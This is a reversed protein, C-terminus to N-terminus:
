KPQIINPGIWYQHMEITYPQNALMASDYRFALLGIIQYDGRALEYYDLSWLRRQWDSPEPTMMGICEPVLWIKQSSTLKNKLRALYWPIVSDFNENANMYYDFGVWDINSPISLYSYYPDELMPFAETIMVPSSYWNKIMGTVNYLTNYLTNQSTSNYYGDQLLCNWFPEDALYFGALIDFNSTNHQRIRDIKARLDAWRADMNWLPVNNAWDILDNGVNILMRVKHTKYHEALADLQDNTTYNGLAIHAINSFSGVDDLGNGFGFGDVQYYGFWVPRPKTYLSRMNSYAVNGQWVWATQTQYIILRVKGTVPFVSSTSDIWGGTNYTWLVNGSEDLLRLESTAPFNFYGATYWQVIDEFPWISGNPVTFEYGAWTGAPVVVSAPASIQLMTKLSQTDVANETCATQSDLTFYTQYGSSGVPVWDNITEWAPSGYQNYFFVCDGDSAKGYVQTGLAFLVSLLVVVLGIRKFWM